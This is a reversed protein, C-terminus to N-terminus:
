LEVIFEPRTGAYYANVQEVATMAMRVAAERTLAATHPTLLVNPLKLLPCDAAPPENAFVDLGAAAVHGDQLAHVLDSEVVIDGRACNIIIMGPKAIGFLSAGIMGRTAPTSPCHVFIYDADRFVEPLASTVRYHPFDSQTVHPGCAIINMKFGNHLIDATLRGIHGIGIVGATKGYLEVPLNMLRVDWGGTRVARDFPQLQKTLSLLMAVAHEAVSVSNANPTNTVTIGRRKVAQTPINDLGVGFRAILELKPALELTAEAIQVNGRLLLADAEPLLSDFAAQGPCQPILVRYSQLMAMAGPHIEQSLLVTKM